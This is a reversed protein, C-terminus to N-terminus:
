LNVRLVLARYRVVFTYPVPGTGTGITLVFTASGTSVNGTIYIKLALYVYPLRCHKLKMTGETKSLQTKLVVVYYRFSARQMFMAIIM